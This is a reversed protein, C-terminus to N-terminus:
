AVISWRDGRAVYPTEFLEGGATIPADLLQFTTTAGLSVDLWSFQGNDPGEISSWQSVARTHRRAHSMPVASACQPGLTAPGCSLRPTGFADAVAAFLPGRLFDAAANPDAWVYFPAYLNRPAGHARDTLAFAKFVLGPFNDFVSGKAAIRDRVRQMEYDAPLSFDYQLAFM